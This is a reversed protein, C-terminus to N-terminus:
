PFVLPIIQNRNKMPWDPRSHTVVVALKDAPNGSSSCLRDWSRGVREGNLLVSLMSQFGVCEMLENPCKGGVVVGSPLLLGPSKKVPCVAANSLSRTYRM